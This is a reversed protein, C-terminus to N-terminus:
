LSAFFMVQQDTHAPEILLQLLKRTSFFNSQNVPVHEFFNNQLSSFLIMFAIYQLNNHVCYDNVCYYNVLTSINIITAESLAHRLILSLEVIPITTCNYM